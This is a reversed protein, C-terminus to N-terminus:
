WMEDYKNMLSYYFDYNEVPIDYDISHTGIIVGGDEAIEVISRVQNEIEKHSGKPLTIINCMGGILVLQNGYKKKVEPLPMGATPALGQIGTFGVEILLDLLPLFNGDCHLVVNKVGKSKWFNIMEKYPSLFIKSFADPSIMPANRNALEDYVWIATDWTDSRELISLGLKKMYQMAKYALHRSFSIDEATDMLFQVEGRLRSCAMYLGLVGSVLAFRKKRYAFDKQISIYRENLNPSEFNIEDLKSKEKIAVEVEKFFYAGERKELLRGWDDREYYIDGRRKEIKRQSFFPGENGCPRFIDGIDIKEYYDYINATKPFNKKKRWSSIFDGRFIEYRPVRDARRFDFTTIVREKPSM